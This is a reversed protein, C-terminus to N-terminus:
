RRSTRGFQVCSSLLAITTINVCKGGNVSTNRHHIPRFGGVVGVSTARMNIAKADFSAAYCYCQKLDISRNVKSVEEM